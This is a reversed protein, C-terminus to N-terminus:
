KQANIERIYVNKFWLVSNHHQLEIQGTPYIPLNREWYNEMTVNNVVLVNNLYVTVKEGIMLIRFSNWEGIPNDANTLPGSPNGEKQNNYLGGSGLNFNAPDWIQVQPSGRLYIGSDGKPGIKWDVLMEFDAYDKATCLSQGKGDYELCGDKVKWHDRMQQDAKVQEAALQEASMKARAPPGGAPSVLGKWGNLDEGNFLAKFGEPAVNDKTSYPLEKIRINRFAVESGHGLFGIHGTDRLMGPHSLITGPNTVTNLDEDVIVTGNLTVTIHRGDAKIEETNWEGPAKQFGRKAPFIGYVSGHYQWPQLKEYVKHENDLVQIEMGMYAADGEYPARIGVGNNAAPTLKVDFRLIFNSYEKETFLNGGGNAPCIITEDQVVYGPGRGGVLKWGDLNKGNFIQTFGEEAAFSSSLTLATTVATLAIYKFISM